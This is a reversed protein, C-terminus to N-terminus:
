MEPSPSRVGSRPFLTERAALTLATGGVACTLVLIGISRMLMTEDEFVRDTLLAVALPGCGMGGINAIMLYVAIVRGRLAADSQEQLIVIASAANSAALAMIVGFVAITLSLTPTVVLLGLGLLALLGYQIGVLTLRGRIQHDRAFRDSLWGGAIPSAVGIVLLLGGVISGIRAPSVAYARSLLTPFWAGVGFSAGLNLGFGILMMVLVAHNSLLAPILKPPDLARDPAPADAQEPEHLTLLLLAMIFGPAGVIVFAMQWDTFANFRTSLGAAFHALAFGGVVASLATGVAGGMLMVGIVRGRRVAPFLDGVLSIAAPALCAEGVGVFMRLVFLQEFSRAFGCAITMVSWILVGVIIVSRRHGRDVLRGIPLGALAFFAAFALGQLLSVQIDSIGLDHKLSPVLIAIIQRDVYAFIWIVTLVALSYLPRRTLREVSL